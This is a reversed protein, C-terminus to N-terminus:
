GLSALGPRKKRFIKKVESLSRTNLVDGATLWGKRAINVGAETFDFHEIRHADPNIATMLGKEAAKRWYRWDMDLRRPNANLEVVVGNAIAADVVKDVNVSYGERMLLLRGTLHGLMTAGPHEIAKIIRKTVTKEDQTLSAHVSVVVYDLQMLLDEGFDLTGDTLIDCEIGSFVHASFKGSANLKAIEDIQRIVREEDLGNAQFSAKSHDAVGWYEWGRKAAAETMEELTARGDSAVTHNHFVGRLEDASVLKPFAGKEAAEIEGMGERLEPPVFSLELHRFIDEENNAILSDEFTEDEVKKLGWESLSFGRSLARQRMAVNHDKSGTFHHLAYAFQKAPVVRLDAQLGNEFRVSSKTSGKSTVEAIGDLNTFWDMIPEPQESAALFDLDGVTDRLRRLSGAHSAQEVGDLKCLGELIPEAIARADWWLHRKNYAERNKIGSLIKEQSKAGFGQLDSVKGEECAARLEDISEIGLKDHLAKIKKGGLGPIELMSVM